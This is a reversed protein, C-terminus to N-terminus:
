KERVFALMAMSAVTLALSLYLPVMMGVSVWLVGAMLSAPLATLGTVLQFGGLSSARYEAPSLESALTRQVPELAARSLGYLVFALIMALYHQVLIMSACVMGWFAFGMFLVNKRGIRDSLRGFPLSFIAAFVTFILYLVPIFVTQFGFQSAYIILFSYSFSGLAFVSSLALYVRFDRSLDKLSLGKFIRAGEAKRERVAIFVLLAGIASPIAAIMFLEKYGLFAFLLITTIIGCVAGLNDLSRLLGFNSGRDERTSVDAIIADRPAGRMKGARDLVRFPILNLWSTSVAYGLRSASAMLYGTWVFVKRRRLRDSAYGSIAQSVSVMADGLGDILGLIAVNAGLFTTVFLPWIPYIMDSGFDNLFSAMGFTRVTRRTEKGAM